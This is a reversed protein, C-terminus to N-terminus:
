CTGRGGYYVDSVQSDQAGTQVLGAFGLGVYQIYPHNKLTKLARLIGFDM